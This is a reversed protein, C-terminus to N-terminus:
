TNASLYVSPGSLALTNSLDLLYTSELSAERQNATSDPKKEQINSSLFATLKEQEILDPNSSASSLSAAM